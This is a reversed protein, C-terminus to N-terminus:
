RTCCCFLGRSSSLPAWFNVSAYRPFGFSDRGHLLPPLYIHAACGSFLVWLRLVAALQFTVRPGFGGTLGPLVGTYDAIM